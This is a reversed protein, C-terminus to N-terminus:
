YQKKEKFFLAKHRKIRRTKILHLILSHPMRTKLYHNVEIRKSKTTNRPLQLKKCEEHIKEDKLNAIKCITKNENSFLKKHIRGAATNQFLLNNTFIGKEDYDDETIKNNQIKTNASQKSENFCLLNEQNNFQSFYNNRQLIKANTETESLIVNKRLIRVKIKIRKVKIREKKSSLINEKIDNM